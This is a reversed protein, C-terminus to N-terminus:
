ATIHTTGPRSRGAAHNTLHVWQELMKHRFCVTDAVVWTDSTSWQAATIMRRKMRFHM